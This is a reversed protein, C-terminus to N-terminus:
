EEKGYKQINNDALTIIISGISLVAAMSSISDCFTMAVVTMMGGSLLVAGRLLAAQLKKNTIRKM